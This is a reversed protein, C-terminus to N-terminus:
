GQCGLIFDIHLQANNADFSGGAISANTTVSIKIDSEACSPVVPTGNPWAMNSTFDFVMGRNGQVSSGFGSLFANSLAGNGRSLRGRGLQNSTNKRQACSIMYLALIVLFGIKWYSKM